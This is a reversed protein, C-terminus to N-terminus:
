RRGGLVWCRHHRQPPPPPAPPPPPTTPNGGGGGGASSHWLLGLRRGPIGIRDRSSSSAASPVASCFLLNSVWPSCQSIGAMVYVSITWGILLGYTILGANGMYVGTISEERCPSWGRSPRTCRVDTPAHFWPPLVMKERGHCSEPKRRLSWARSSRAKETFRSAAEPCRGQKKYVPRPDHASPELLEHAGVPYNQNLARIRPLLYGRYPHGM